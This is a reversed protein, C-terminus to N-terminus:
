PRSGIWFCGGGIISAVYALAICEHTTGVLSYGILWLVFTILITIIARTKIDKM